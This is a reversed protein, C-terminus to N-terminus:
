FLYLLLILYKADLIYEPTIHRYINYFLNFHMEMRRYFHPNFESFFAFDRESKLRVTNSRVGFYTVPLQAAM